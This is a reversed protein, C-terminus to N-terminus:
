PIRIFPPNDFPGRKLIFSIDVKMKFVKELQIRLPKFGAEGSQIKGTKMAHLMTREKASGPNPQNFREEIIRYFDEENVRVALDIDSDPRATGAARSGQVVIDNSIDGVSDLILATGEDFDEQSIGQPPGENYNEPPDESDDGGTGTGERPPEDGSGSGSDNDATPAAQDESIDRQDHDETAHEQNDQETQEKGNTGTSNNTDDIAVPADTPSGDRDAPGAVPATPSEQGTSGDNVPSVAWPDTTTDADSGSTGDRLEQATPASDGTPSRVDEHSAVTAPEPAPTSPADGSNPAPTDGMPTIPGSPPEPTPVPDPTGTPVGPDATPGSGLQSELGALAEHMGGITAGPDPQGATPGDTSMNVTDTGHLGSGHPSVGNPGREVPLPGDGDLGHAPGSGLDPNDLFTRAWGMPTLMLAANGAGNTITYMPRDDWESVPVVSDGVEIWPGRANEYQADAGGPSAWEDQANSGTLAWFSTKADEWNALLNQGHETGFPYAAQGDRYLGTGIGLGVVAGVVIDGLGWFADELASTPADVPSGWPNAQDTRASMTGYIQYTRDGSTSTQDHEAKDSHGTFWTGGYHEGIKNACDREAEQFEHVALAIRNNLGNNREREDEDELWEEDWGVDARFAEAEAKLGTLRSKLERATEAFTELATAADRVGTAVSTGDSSVPDLVSLLTDAEPAVYVGTLSAWASTIGSGSEEIAEGVTRFAAAAEELADPDVNPIPVLGPVVGGDAAPECAEISFSTFEM